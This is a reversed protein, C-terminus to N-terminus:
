LGADELVAAGATHGLAFGRRARVKLKTEDTSFGVGTAADAVYSEPGSRRGVILLNKNAIVLLPNGTPAPTASTSVRAGLSWHVPYGFLTDPTSDTTEIFIPRGYNDKIDRLRQKFKPAAIVVTAGPDFWDSQEYIGVVSSLNGYTTSAKSASTATGNGTLSLTSGGLTASLAVTTSSPVSVVYYTTGNSIGTTTAIGQLVLQDNVFLGHPQNFTLVAGSATITVAGLNQGALVYNTDATYSINSDTTRVAQYVSTFPRDSAVSQAGVTALCANDFTKAFSTAWDVRKVDLINVLNQSDALDEEALSIARGFKRAVLLVADDSTSDETYQDGNALIDMGMGGSRPVHRTATTMPEPRGLAEVASMQLVKQIVPGDWEEPIWPSFTHMAM